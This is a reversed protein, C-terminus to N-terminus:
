GEGGCCRDDTIATRVERTAANRAALEDAPPYDVRVLSLGHAPAVAVESARERRTLLSRAWDPTRRGEGVAQMAGVLSRVMSWCFADASVYATLRDGDREWDFRQLERVTTAGDRRKCFAAFDHLGILGASAERMAGLDIPRPWSVVGAVDLPDVGYLATGFRYEYHRRYASFRADFDRSVATIARVRVDTPLFRAMRRVLQDHDDPVDVADFHAVQGTAHVGADTRGAVTLEISQRLVTSFAEELVGCVTRIGPQRAWGSFSTGDYSIDLRFRTPVSLAPGGEGPPIAPGSRDHASSM